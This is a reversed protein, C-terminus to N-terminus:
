FPQKAARQELNQAPLCIWEPQKVSVLSHFFPQLCHETGQELCVWMGEKRNIGGSGMFISWGSHLRNLHVTILSIYTVCPWVLLVAEYQFLLLLSIPIQGCMFRLRNRGRKVSNWLGGLDRVGLQMFTIVNMIQHQVRNNLIFPSRDWQSREGFSKEMRSNYLFFHVRRGQGALWWSVNTISQHAKGRRTRKDTKSLSSTLRAPRVHM